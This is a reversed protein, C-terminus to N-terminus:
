HFTEKKTQALVYEFRSKWGLTDEELKSEKDSVREVFDIIIELDIKQVKFFISKEYEDFRIDKGVYFFPIGRVAYERHKISSSLEVGKREIALTGVGMNSQNFLRDLEEGKKIGVFSVLHEIGLDQSLRILKAKEPGEGVVTLFVQETNGEISVYDAIRKLLIDIGYWYWLTGVAIFRLGENKYQPEWKKYRAANIGNTINICTIGYITKSKGFDIGWEAYSKLRTRYTRDLFLLMKGLFSKYEQDYPYTPFEILIRSETNISKIHKLLRLLSKSSLGYRLYVLNYGRDKILPILKHYFEVNSFIRKRWSNNLNYSNVVEGNCVIGDATLFYLDVEYGLEIWADRQDEMKHVVGVANPDDSYVKYVMLMRM